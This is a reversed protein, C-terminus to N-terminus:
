INGDLEMKKLKRYLTMRPIGLTDAAQSKNFNCSILTDKIIQTEVEELINNLSSKNSSQSPAYNKAAIKYSSELIYSPIIDKTVEEGSSIVALREVINRLERVNGPWDYKVLVDIIENSFSKYIGCRQYFSTIFHDVLLPIDGSRERLSPVNLHLVNLRYFLDARFEKKAVKDELDCNTAAIIRVDTNVIRNTGIKEIQNEQLARLLKAQMNLPLDGIEDLFITGGNALEFKGPKGSKSAGTFSGAEYGFLESEILPEPIAACNLSIFPKNSRKSFGHISHAFLEKGVGSEGTILVPLDTIAYSKAQAKCKKGSPSQSLIDEFKYKPRFTELVNEPAQPKITNIISNRLERNNLDDVLIIGVGGMVKGDDVIPIRDVIAEKGNSFKHKRGLEPVGTKLVLPLRVTPDVETLHKGVVDKISSGIYDLFAQNMVIVNCNEDVFNIPLPLRNFISPPISTLLKDVNNNITHQYM